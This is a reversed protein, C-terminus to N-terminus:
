PSRVVLKLLLDGLFHVTEIKLIILQIAHVYYLLFFFFSSKFCLIPRMSFRKTCSFKAMAYTNFLM